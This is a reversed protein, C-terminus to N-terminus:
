AKRHRGNRTLRAVAQLQRWHAHAQQSLEQPPTNTYSRLLEFLTELCRKVAAEPTRGEEVIGLAPLAAFFWSASRRVEVLLPAQLRGQPVPSEYLVRTEVLPGLDALSQIFERAAKSSTMPKVQKKPVVIKTSM